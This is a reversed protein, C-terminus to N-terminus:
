TRPQALPKGDLVGRLTSLTEELTFRQSPEQQLFLNLEHICRLATDVRANTGSVYAGVEILDAAGKYASLVDRVRRALDKHETTVVDNMVRSVSGLVDVAPFHGANALDRSLVIHGDLAARAADVVPDTLDDGEALVTYMATISGAGECNGAREVLRPLMAFVSPPYGRSTPPEGAALGIERQAMAMRSLSDILLLVRKGKDRFYEAVATAAMAARVRVLPSEDGTAVVVVSRKLGEGLDREVFERVERGREGVLGVVIVDANASRALMGLLVSKGIGPGAMIGLRQGEGCTLVADISRIGLVLPRFIRKRSMARPAYTHLPVRVDLPLSGRDDLPEIAANVVRGLLRDGVLIEGASARPIVPCGEGIGKVDGFPMLIANSASFGVVEATIIQGGNTRIECSTGVAVQPLIAEVVIGAARTVKGALVCSEAEYLTRKLAVLNILSM